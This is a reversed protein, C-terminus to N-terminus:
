EAAEKKAVPFWLVHIAKDPSTAAPDSFSDM